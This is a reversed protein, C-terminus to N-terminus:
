QIEFKLERKLGAERIKLICNDCVDYLECDVNTITVTYRKRDFYEGCIDCKYANSM